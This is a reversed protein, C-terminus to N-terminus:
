FINKYVPKGNTDTKDTKIEEYIPIKRLQAQTGVVGKEKTLWTSLTYHLLETGKQKLVKKFQNLHAKQHM